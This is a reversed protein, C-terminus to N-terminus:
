PVLQSLHERLMTRLVSKGKTTKFYKERRKADKQNRYAEYFCLDFPRRPRTSSILGSNHMHYRKRLDATSGIYFRNDRRSRLVYVYYFKAM